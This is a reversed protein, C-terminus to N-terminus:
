STEGIQYPKDKLGTKCVLEDIKKVVRAPVGYAVSNPPIDKTVLSGAGILSNQGIEVKPLITVNAGIRAYKRITPGKLCLGCRPHPDNTLVCNPALFVGEEIVTYEPVFVGSHIRVHNGIFSSREIISHSGVVVDDGIVNQERILAGHGTQFKKGIKTGAYIVTHSRIISEDDIITELEGPKKGIPPHGIIVYAEIQVDEGLKVNPYLYFKRSM